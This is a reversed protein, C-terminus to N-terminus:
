ASKKGTLDELNINPGRMKPRGSEVRPVTQGPAHIPQQGSFSTQAQPQPNLMAMINAGTAKFLMKGGVFIAGNLLVMGILQIEPPWPKKGSFYSKEGIQYLIREYQNLGLMQQQAFGKIDEFKFFNGLVFELIFFGITLYKKYNEVTADLSLQRVVADYERELVKLDTYETFEPISASSYTKRLIKFKFLIDRKKGAEDTETKTAYEMQRLGTKPDIQPKGSQIDELSPAVTPYTKNQSAGAAAAGGQDRSGGSTSSSSSFREKGADPDKGRLLDDLSVATAVAPALISAM